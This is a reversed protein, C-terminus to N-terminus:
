FSQTTFQQNIHNQLKILFLTAFKAEKKEEFYLAQEVKKKGNAPLNADGKEEKNLQKDLFYKGKCCSVRKLRNTCIKEAIFTQNM